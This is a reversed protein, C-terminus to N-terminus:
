SIAEELKDIGGDIMFVYFRQTTTTFDGTPHNGWFIWPLVDVIFHELYYEKPNAFNYTGIDMLDDVRYGENNYIVEYKGDESIYKVNDKNIATFQHCSATDKVWGNEKIFQEDFIEPAVYSHELRGYHKDKTIGTIISYPIMDFISTLIYSIIFDIEEITNNYVDICDEIYGEVWNGIEIFWKVFGELTGDISFRNDSNDRNLGFPDVFSVPNGNVYSYRNLSTSDSIKGHLIDANVFRRMDPSYYRARMYFLGNKDTVVGDRGNYCFIIDSTGTRSTLLGYTDYEFTDSINGNVDTIAVTSGRYDFHYVKATNNTEESILGLGYVYKTVTTGVTRMLMKSLKCNTHYTYQEEVGYQINKIRVDEANYTYANGGAYLLRNASDYMCSICGNNLMNGDPDYSVNKCDYKVLKNYLDYEFCSDDSDGTINGAADYTFTERSVLAGTTANMVTRATVRNLVDYTYCFKENKDLHTEESIRGLTDYVYSFGSIVTNDAKREVSSVVRQKSDYITTTISGDPKTVGVVRNNEDYTYTTVRNAWDTVRILNRNADYAYTVATNDPYTIKTLNGVQDYEYGITKNYTDTYSTVRNLADYTRTITGHSDTVTLVNGNADYTYSVSDEPSTYGTVRGLADHFYNRVQNRANKVQNKINLANYGYTVTGGSSTSESTLRGMDDYTYSTGGMLIHALPGVLKTINGLVDYVATSTNGLADEVSTNQGRSNYAYEQVHNMSDRVTAVKGLANYTYITTKGTADTVTLPLNLNNYTTESITNGKADVTKLVNGNADYTTTFTNNKADTISTRRGLVDYGYTIVNNKADKVTVVQNHCNYTYTTVNNLSDKVTLLNNNADYTYTTVNNKADKFTLKNGYTDYTYSKINGLADTESILDGAASYEYVTAGAVANVVRSVKNMSNYQYTTTNNNDDTVTLVNGMADYTKVIEAGKPNIEKTINGVNDYEYQVTSNDAFRKLIPRGADDNQIVTVNGAQDTEKVPRDEGDYEYTITNGDPFKVATNKMNGNYTYETKNGNADTVSTKQHNCDYTNIVSKGNADTTKLLNGCLDYEYLTVNEDADKKSIMQGLANYGFQTTNGVADTHSKLFGNEYVFLEANKSGVKKSAPLGATDYTYVTVTGRRDTHQIIKNQANYVFTEEPVINGIAPYTIKTVNGRDDYTYITKNGNKDTIETPKNFTNYVKVIANNNADTERIINFRDDYSYTKTNENEDTYNVLLGNENFVRRNQKGNRNTVLRSKDNNYVITTPLSGTIGDKQSAVRGYIDYTNEFYCINKADTGTKIRGYDDYTYSLTDGKANCIGVLYNGNYTFTAQRSNDDYVRVIRGTVDKELYMKKGTVSDTITILTDTYSILIAFGLHDEIKTLYGNANFYEKRYSNCDLVYRYDSSIMNVTLVYGHKSINSCTYVNANSSDITYRSYTAPNDYIYFEDCVVELRKEFNHYWGCGLMGNVLKTSNYNAELKLGLGGFLKFVTNTIEHAGTYGDIPDAIKTEDGVNNNHGNGDEETAETKTEDVKVEYSASISNCDVATARINTIGAGVGTVEGTIPNVSAVSSDNTSWIIDTNDANAPYVTAVNTGKGGKSLTLTEEEFTISEVYIPEPVTVVLSDSKGSGDIAQATIVATGPSRACIGGTIPNVSAVTSNSSSWRVDNCTANSPYVIVYAASYCGVKLYMYNPSVNVSTVCIM